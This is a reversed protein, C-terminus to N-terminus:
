IRQGCGLKSSVIPIRWVSDERSTERVVFSATYCTEPLFIKSLVCGLRVFGDSGLVENISAGLSSRITLFFGMSALQRMIDDNHLVLWTSCELKDNM